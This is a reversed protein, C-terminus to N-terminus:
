KSPDKPQIHNTQAAIAAELEAVKEMWFVNANSLKRKQEEADKQCKELEERLEGRERELHGVKSTLGVIQGKLQKIESSFTKRIPEDLELMKRQNEITRYACDLEDSHNAKPKSVNDFYGKKLKKSEERLRQNEARLEDSKEARAIVESAREGIAHAISMLKETPIGACANICAVIRRLNAPESKITVGRSDCLLMLHDNVGWPEKTHVM